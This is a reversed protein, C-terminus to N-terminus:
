VAHSVFWTTQSELHDLQIEGTVHAADTQSPIADNDYQVGQNLYYAIDFKHIGGKGESDSKKLLMTMARM